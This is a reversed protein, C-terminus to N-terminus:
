IQWRKGFVESMAAKELLLANWANEWWRCTKDSSGRELRRWSVAFMLLFLCSDERARFGWGPQECLPEGPAQQGISLPTQLCLERCNVWPCQREELSGSHGNSEASTGEPSTALPNKALAMCAAVCWSPHSQPTGSSLGCTHAPAPTVAPM